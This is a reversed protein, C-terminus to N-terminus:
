QSMGVCGGSSKSGLRFNGGLEFPLAEAVFFHRGLM